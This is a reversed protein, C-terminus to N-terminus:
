DREAERRSDQKPAIEQEVGEAVLSGGACGGVEKVQNAYSNVSDRLANLRALMTKQKEKLGAAPSTRRSAPWHARAYLGALEKM